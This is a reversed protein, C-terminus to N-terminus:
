YKGDQMRCVTFHFVFLLFKLVCSGLLTLLTFSFSLANMFTYLAGDTM